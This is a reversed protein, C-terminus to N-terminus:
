ATLGTRWVRLMPNTQSELQAHNCKELASLFGSQAPSRTAHKGLVFRNCDERTVAKRSSARCPSRHSIKGAQVQLQRRLPCRSRAHRMAFYHRCSRGAGQLACVGLTSARSSQRAFPIRLDSTSASCQLPRRRCRKRLHFPVPRHWFSCGQRGPQDPVFPAASNNSRHPQCGQGESGLAQEAKFGTKHQRCPMCNNHHSSVMVTHRSHTAAAPTCGCSDRM